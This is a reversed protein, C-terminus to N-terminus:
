GQLFLTGPVIEELRGCGMGTKPKVPFRARRHISDLLYTPTLVHLGAMLGDPQRAVVASGRPM